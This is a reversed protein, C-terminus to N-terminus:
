AVAVILWDPLLMKLDPIPEEFEEPLFAATDNEPPSRFLSYTNTHFAGPFPPMAPEQNRPTCMEDFFMSRSFFDASPLDNQHLTFLSFRTTNLANMAHASANMAHASANMAHASANMAHASANM